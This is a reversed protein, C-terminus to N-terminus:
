AVVVDEGGQVGDECFEPISWNFLAALGILQIDSLSNKFVKSYEEEAQQNVGEQEIIIELSRMVKKKSRGVMDTMWLEPGAGALRRSRRPIEGPPLTKTRRKNIAPVPLLGATQRSLKSIFADHNSPTV